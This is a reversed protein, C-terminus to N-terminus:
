LLSTDLVLPKVQKLAFIRPENNKFHCCTNSILFFFTVAHTLTPMTSGNQHHHSIIDYYSDSIIGSM